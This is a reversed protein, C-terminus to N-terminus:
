NSQRRADCALLVRHGSRGHINSEASREPARQANRIPGFEARAASRRLARYPILPPSRTTFSRDDTATSTPTTRSEVVRWSGTARLLNGAHGTAFSALFRGHRHSDHHRRQTRGAFDHGPGRPDHGSRDSTASREDCMVSGTGIASGTRAVGRGRGSWTRAHPDLGELSACCLTCRRADLVGFPLEAGCRLKGIRSWRRLPSRRRLVPAGPLRRRGRPV